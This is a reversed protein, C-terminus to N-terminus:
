ENIDPFEDLLGLVATYSWQLPTIDAGVTADTVIENNNAADAFDTENDTAQAVADADTRTDNPLFNETAPALSWKDDFVDAIVYTKGGQVEAFQLNQLIIIDNLYNDSNSPNNSLNKEPDTPDEAGDADLEIDSDNDFAFFYINQLDYQAGDRLDAFDSSNRGYASGNRFTGIEADGEDTGEPGDLEFAHDSNWGYGAGAGVYVFNTISGSWGQDADYGDDDPSNVIFNTISVTGGFIEMGDDSSNISEVNDITTGSGVGGLTLGQLENGPGLQAGSFRISVYSVSGSNDDAASGGYLGATISTPIGEIQEESAGAVIPANGLILFGGWLGKDNEIDLGKSEFEGVNIDDLVSTMVIPNGEEGNALVTADRAILLVSALAGNGTTGKIITGPNITLTSGAGVIVRGNLVWIRDNTFTFDENITGTVISLPYNVDTGDVSRTETEESVTYTPEFPSVTLVHTVSEEDGEVDSVTFVFVINTGAEAQTPTYEFAYTASTGEGSLDVTAFNAGGKTIVLEDLGDQATVTASVPGLPTGAAVTATPPIGSITISGPVIPDDENCSTIGFVLGAALFLLLSLKRM